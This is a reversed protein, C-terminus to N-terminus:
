YTFNITEPANQGEGKPRGTTTALAFKSTAMLELLCVYASPVASKASSCARNRTNHTQADLPAVHGVNQLKTCEHNLLCWWFELVHVYSFLLQLFLLPSFIWFLLVFINKKERKIKHIDNARCQPCSLSEGLLFFLCFFFPIKRESYWLFILFFIRKQSLIPIYIRLFFFSRILFVLSSNEDPKPKLHTVCLLLVCCSCSWNVMFSPVHTHSGHNKLYRKWTQTYYITLSSNLLAHKKRTPKTSRSNSNKNRNKPIQGLM